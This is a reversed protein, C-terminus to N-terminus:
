KVGNETVVLRGLQIDGTRTEDGAGVEDLIQGEALVKM